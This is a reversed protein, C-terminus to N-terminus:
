GDGAQHLRGVDLKLRARSISSEHPVRFSGEDISKRLVEAAQSGILMSASRVLAEPMCAESITVTATSTPILATGCDWMPLVHRSVDM